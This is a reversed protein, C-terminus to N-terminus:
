YKLPSFLALLSYNLDIMYDYFKVFYIDIYKNYTDM